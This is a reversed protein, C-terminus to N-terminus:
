GTPAERHPAFTMGDYVDSMPLGAGIIPLDITEDMAEFAQTVWAEGDRRYLTASPWRTEVLLIYAITPHRKYEELKRFRDITSTSPSLVEVVLRPTRSEYSDLVLDGCEVTVDPRRLTSIGTRLGIDDTTPRCRTGRLQGHLAAIINVTVRDHQASAGTMMKVHPIPVGDVLEYLFDQRQQWDFFEEVSMLRRATQAMFGTGPRDHHYWLGFVAPQLRM